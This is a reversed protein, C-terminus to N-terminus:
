QLNSHAKKKVRELNNQIFIRPASHNSFYEFRDIQGWSGHWMKLKGM